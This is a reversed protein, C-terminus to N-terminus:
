VTAQYLHQASGHRFDSLGFVRLWRQRRRAFVLREDGGWQASETRPPSLAADPPHWSIKEAM